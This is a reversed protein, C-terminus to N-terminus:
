GLRFVVEEAEEGSLASADAKLGTLQDPRVMPDAQMSWLSSPHSKFVLLFLLGPDIKPDPHHQSIYYIHQLYLEKVM